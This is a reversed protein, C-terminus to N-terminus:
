QEHANLQSAAELEARREQFVALNNKTAPLAMGRPFLYNRGYGARVKVTDGLDGLNRIKQLLVVDM